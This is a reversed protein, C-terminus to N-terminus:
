VGWGDYNSEEYVEITDPNVAKVEDKYLIMITNPGDWSVVEGIYSLLYAFVRVKVKTGPRFQKHKLWFNKM